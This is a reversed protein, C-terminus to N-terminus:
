MQAPYGGHPMSLSNRTGTFDGGLPSAIPSRRKWSALRLASTAPVSRRDALRGAAAAAWLDELPVIREAISPPPPALFRSRRGWISVRWWPVNSVGRFQSRHECGHPAGGGSPEFASRPRANSASRSPRRMRSSRPKLGAKGLSASAIAAPAYSSDTVPAASFLTAAGLAVAVGAAAFQSKKLAQREPRERM